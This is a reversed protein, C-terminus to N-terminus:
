LTYILAHDEERQSLLDDHHAGFLWGQSHFVFLFLFSPAFDM